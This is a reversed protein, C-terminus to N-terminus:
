GPETAHPGTADDHRPVSPRSTCDATRDPTRAPIMAGANINGEVHASKGVEINQSTTITGQVVGDIIMPGDGKFEGQVRVGEAIITTGEFGEKKQNFMAM